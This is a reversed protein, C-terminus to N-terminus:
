LGKKREHLIMKLRRNREKMKKDYIDDFLNRVEFNVDYATVKKDSMYIDDDKIKAVIKGKHKIALMNRTEGVIVGKIGELARNKAKAIEVELGILEHRALNKATLAM